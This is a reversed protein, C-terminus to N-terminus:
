EEEMREPGVPQAKLRRKDEYMAHDAREFVAAVCTDEEFRAMGCAIVIGGSRRAATNHDRMAELRRDLCTYDSGQAIVAFEDGGVRFVPSHKFVECIIRCADCLYQDGAQHGATDNIKKLDNLDMVVIAFPPASQAAILRDLRLETELYAHRNRIGTLADVNAQSEAQALRKEIEEEQRVQIDIDNLGVVLRKGEKEEVMAAKLQVHIPEGKMLVRYGFTFFGSREVEAMINKRTVVTLYRKRDAPYVHQSAAERVNEFFDTGTKAQALNETYDATSSFERFSGTEPDVVYVVIFNGTLAHLRAYVLREEQIREEVRRKKVLEDIDSVAIVIMRPDDEMRSVKMQVYFLRGNKIRRYTMEFVRSRDLAGTLFDRNMAHVFAEQDEPHVFLKAERACSEFFDAARRSEVLVGREDDTHYEIYEDTEMNVYFLDTYDRTLAHAIHIYVVGSRRLQECAKRLRENEQRLDALERTMRNEASRSNEGPLNNM